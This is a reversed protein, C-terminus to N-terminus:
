PSRARHRRKIGMNKMMADVRTVGHQLTARIQHDLRVDTLVATCFLAVGFVVIWFLFPRPRDTLIVYATFLLVAIGAQYLMHILASRERINKTNLEKFQPRIVGAYVKEAEAPPLDYRDVLWVRYNPQRLIRENIFDLLFSIPYDYLISRYVAYIIVGCVIVGLSAGALKAWDSALLALYNPDTVGFCIVLIVAPFIYRFANELTIRPM